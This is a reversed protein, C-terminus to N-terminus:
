IYSINPSIDEDGGKVRPILIYLGEAKTDVERSGLYIGNREEKLDIHYSKGTPTKLLAGLYLRYGPIERVASGDRKLFSMVIRMPKGQPYLITKEKRGEPSTSTSLLKGSPSLLKVEIPLPTRGIEVKGKGSLKYKWKGPVPEMVTYIERWINFGKTPPTHKVNKEKESLAKGGPQIIEVRAKKNEKLIVFTIKELYPEVDIEKGEPPIFDWIPAQARLLNAGIDTYVKEVQVEDMSRLLRVRNGTIKDWFPKDQKWFRDKVDVLIVYLLVDKMESNVFKEIESFYEKISLKRADDPEGDTLIVVVRQREGRQRSFEEKAAKLASIFSTNGLDMPKLEGKLYQAGEPSLPQLPTSKPPQDGFNVIGLHHPIKKSYDQSLLDVFHQAASIRINHPDTDKMSGSQDILLLCDIAFPEEGKLLITSLLFILFLFSLKRMERDIIIDM